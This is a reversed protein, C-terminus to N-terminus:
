KLKGFDEALIMTLEEEQSSTLPKDPDDAGKVVGDHRAVVEGNKIFYMDPTYLHEKGDEDKELYEGFYKVVLDYNDIDMNNQWEPNSRTDVYGVFQGAAEAARNVYPMVVNCYPCDAFSFLVAFTEKDNILRVVEAVDTEVLRSEGDYDDMGYYDGLDVPDKSAFAVNAKTDDTSGGSETSGCAPLMALIAFLMTIMVVYKISQTSREKTSRM